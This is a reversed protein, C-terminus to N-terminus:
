SQVFGQGVPDLVSAFVIPITRTQQSLAKLAATGICVLVQPDLAVLEASYRALLASNPGGWRVDIQLNSDEKWGLKALADRFATLLSQATTDSELLPMLVGVKSLTPALTARAALPWSAAGGAFAAIFERRRMPEGEASRRVRGYQNIHHMVARHDGINPKPDNRGPAGSDGVMELRQRRGDLTRKAGFAVQNSRAPSIVRLAM